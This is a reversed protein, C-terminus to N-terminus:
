RCEREQRRIGEHRAVVGVHRGHGRPEPDLGLLDHKAEGKLDPHHPQRSGGILLVHPLIKLDKSHPQSRLFHGEDVADRTSVIGDRPATERRRSRRVSNRHALGVADTSCPLLRCWQGRKGM